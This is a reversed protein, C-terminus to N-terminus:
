LSDTNKACPGVKDEFGDITQSKYCYAIFTLHYRKIPFVRLSWRDTTSTIKGSFPSYPNSYM